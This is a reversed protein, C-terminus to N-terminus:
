GHGHGSRPAYRQDAEAAGLVLHVGLQDEAAEGRGAGFDDLVRLVGVEEDDVGAGEDVGGAHLRDLREQRGLLPLTARRPPADDGGAAEHLAAAGLQGLPDGLDVRQEAEVLDGRRRAHERRAERRDVREVGRAAGRARQEGRGVRAAADDARRPAGVDLDGFPAVLGAGEAGDRAEAALHAGAREVVHEVLQPAERPLPDGLGAEHRLVGGGVAAVEAEGVAERPEQAGRRPEVFRRRPDAHVVEIRAADRGLQERREGLPRRPDDLVHVHRQLVRVRRRQPPHAAGAVRLAVQPLELLQPAREGAGADAGREDDAEGALRVLLELRQLLEHARGAEVRDADEGVRVLFPGVGVPALVVHRLLHLRLPALPQLLDRQGRRM